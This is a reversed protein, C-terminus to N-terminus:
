SIFDLLLYAFKQNEILLNGSDVYKVVNPHNVTKLITIELVEGEIDFQNRNLKGYNFLKLFGLKGNNDKVRYTEAYESGKIFFLVNYKGDIIHGKQILGKSLNAM